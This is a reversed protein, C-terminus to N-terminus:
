IVQGTGRCGKCKADIPKRGDVEETQCDSCGHTQDWLACGEEDAEEVALDFEEPTFGWELRHPPCDGVGGECYGAVVVGKDNASFRIGCRTDKFLLHAISETTQNVAGLHGALQKLNQIRKAKRGM